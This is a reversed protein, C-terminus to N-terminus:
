GTMETPRNSATVMSDGGDTELSPLLLNTLHFAALHHVQLNIEFGDATPTRDGFIGGANNALVDIGAPGAAESLEGALRRVDDLRAFDAVFPPAGPTRAVAAPTAPPRGVVRRPHGHDALRPAAA